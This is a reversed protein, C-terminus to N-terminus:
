ENKLKRGCNPCYNFYYIETHGDGCGWCGIKGNEDPGIYCATWGGGAVKIGNDDQDYEKVFDWGDFSETFVPKQNCLECGENNESM